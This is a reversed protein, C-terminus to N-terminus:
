RLPAVFHMPRVMVMSSAVRPAEMIPVWEVGAEESRKEARAWSM